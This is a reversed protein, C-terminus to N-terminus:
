PELMKYVFKINNRIASLSFGFKRSLYGQSITRNGCVQIFAIYIFALALIHPNKGQLRRFDIMYLLKRAEKFVEKELTYINKANINRTFLRDLFIKRLILSIIKETRDRVSVLGYIREHQLMAIAELLNSRTVRHGLSQYIELVKNITINFGNARIAAILCAASLRYHNIKGYYGIDRIRKLMKTYLIYAHEVMYRPLGLKEVVIILTKHVRYQMSRDGTAKSYLNLKSIRKLKRLFAPRVAECNHTISPALFTGLELPEPVYGRTFIRNKIFSQKSLLLNKNHVLGCRSCVSEGEPNLVLEGGCEICRGPM